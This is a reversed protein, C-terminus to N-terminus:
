VVEDLETLPKKKEVLFFTRAFLQLKESLGVNTIILETSAGKLNIAESAQKAL